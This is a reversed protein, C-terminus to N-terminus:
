QPVVPRWWNPVSLVVGSLSALRNALELAAMGPETEILYSNPLGEFPTARDGLRHSELFAGTDRETWSENLMLIVGGTPALLQGTDTAFVPIKPAEATSAQAATRTASTQPSSADVKSLRLGSKKDGELVLDTMLTLRILRSGERYSAGDPEQGFAPVTQLILLAPFLAWSSVMRNKM